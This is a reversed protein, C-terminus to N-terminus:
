KKTKKLFRQDSIGPMVVTYFHKLSPKGNEKTKKIENQGLIFFM